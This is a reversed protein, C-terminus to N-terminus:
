CAASRRPRPAAFRDASERAMRSYPRRRTRWSGLVAGGPVTEDRPPTRSGWGHLVPDETRPGTDIVAPGVAAGDARPGRTQGVVVIRHGPNVNAEATGGASDAALAGPGLRSAAQHEGTWAHGWAEQEGRMSRRNPPRFAAPHSPYQNPIRHRAAHSPLLSREPSIVSSQRAAQRGFSILPEAAPARRRM